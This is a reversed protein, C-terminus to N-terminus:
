HNTLTITTIAAESQGRTRKKLRDFMEQTMKITEKRFHRVSLLMIAHNVPSYSALSAVGVFMLSYASPLEFHGVCLLLEAPIAFFLTFTVTQAIISRHLSRQLSQTKPLPKGIQLCLYIVGVISAIVMILVVVSVAIIVHNMQYLICFIISGFHACLLVALLLLTYFQAYKGLNNVLGDSVVHFMSPLPVPFLAILTLESLYATLLNTCLLRRYENMVPPTKWRFLSIILIFAFTQVVLITYLYFQLGWRLRRSWQLDLDTPTPVYM